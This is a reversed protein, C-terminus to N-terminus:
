EVNTAPCPGEVVEVLVDEHLRRLKLALTQAGEEDEHQCRERKTLESSPSVCFPRGKITVHHM